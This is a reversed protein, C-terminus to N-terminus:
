CTRNAAVDYCFTAGGSTIRVRRFEFTATEDPSAAQTTGGVTWSSVSVENLEVRAVQNGSADTQTLTLTPLFRGTSVASLLAPSCGDFAKTVALGQFVTRGSGGGGGGSSGGSNMAGWSWSRANFAGSGAATTCLLSGVTVTITSRPGRRDNDSDSNPRDALAANSMLLASIALSLTKM